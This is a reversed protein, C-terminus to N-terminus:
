RAAHNSELEALQARCDVLQKAKKAYVKRLMPKRDEPMLKGRKVISEMACEIAVIRIKLLFYDNRMCSVCVGAERCIQQAEVTPVTSWTHCIKCDVLLQRQRPPSKRAVDTDSQVRIDV